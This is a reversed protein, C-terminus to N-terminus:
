TTARRARANCVVKEKDITCFLGSVETGNGYIFGIAEPPTLRSVAAFKM